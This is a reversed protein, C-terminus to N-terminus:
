QYTASNGFTFVSGIGGIEIGSAQIMTATSGVHSVSLSGPVAFAAGPAATTPPLALLVQSPITFSGDTV